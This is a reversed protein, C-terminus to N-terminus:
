WIMWIGISAPGPVDPHYTRCTILKGHTLHTHPWLQSGAFQLEKIGGQKKKWIGLKPKDLAVWVLYLNIRMKGMLAESFCKRTEMKGSQGGVFDMLEQGAQSLSGPHRRLQLWQVPGARRLSEAACAAGPSRSPWRPCRHCPAGAGRLAVSAAAGLGFLPWPSEHTVSM